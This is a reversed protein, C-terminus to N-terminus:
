ENLIQYCFKQGETSTKKQPPPTHQLRSMWPQQLYATKLLTNVGELHSDSVRRALLARIVDRDSYQCWFVLCFTIPERFVNM